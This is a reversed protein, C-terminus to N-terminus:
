TSIGSHKTRAHGLTGTFTEECFAHTHANQLKPEKDLIAPSRSALDRDTLSENVCQGHQFRHTASVFAGPRSVLTLRGPAENM